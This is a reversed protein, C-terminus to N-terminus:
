NLDGDVGTGAPQARNVACVFDVENIGAPLNCWSMITSTSSLVSKM